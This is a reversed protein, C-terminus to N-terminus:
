CSVQAAWWAQLQLPRERRGNELGFGLLAMDPEMWWRHLGDCTPSAAPLHSHWPTAASSLALHSARDETQGRKRRHVRGFGNLVSLSRVSRSVRPSSQLKRDVALWAGGCGCSTGPKHRWRGGRGGRCELDHRCHCGEDAEGSGHVPTLTLHHGCSHAHHSGLDMSCTCAFNSCKAQVCIFAKWDPAFGGSVYECWVQM